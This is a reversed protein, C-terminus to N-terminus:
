EVLDLQVPAVGSATLGIMDAAGESLDIVRGHAYPGRDNIEVVVSRGNDLNTVRVRSGFPLSPHAATLAYRNFTSGSATLNGDFGPGYWSAMGGGLSRLSGTSADPVPQVAIAAKPKGEVETLATVNGLQRRILNTIQLADEASDSTTKPLITASSIELLVDKDATIVPKKATQDWKVRILNADFGAQHLQNLKAMLATAPASPDSKSDGLFTVVPIKRLYVTVAPQNSIKHSFSTAIAEVPAAQEPSGVKVAGQNQPLVPSSDLNEQAPDNGQQVDVVEALTASSGPDDSAYTVSLTGVVSMTLAAAFSSLLIHKM